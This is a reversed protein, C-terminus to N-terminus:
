VNTLTSEIASAAYAILLSEGDFDDGDCDENVNSKGYWVSKTRTSGTKM